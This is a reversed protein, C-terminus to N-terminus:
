EALHKEFEARAEAPPNGLLYQHLFEAFERCNM